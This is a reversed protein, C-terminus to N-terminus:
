DYHVKVGIRSGFIFFYRATLSLRNNQNPYRVELWSVQEPDPNKKEFVFEIKQM